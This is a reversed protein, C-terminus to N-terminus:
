LWGMKGWHLLNIFSSDPYALKEAEQLYKESLPNGDIVSLAETLYAPKDIGVLVSSIGATSLAFKVALQPLTEAHAHFLSSYKLRHEQVGRLAPHLTSGKDTLVGKCLVSRVVIGIGKEAAFRIAPLHSQDLLNFPLQIVDWVGSEVAKNSEEVSYVSIGTARIKGARKQKSFFSIVTDNGIIDEGGDHSMYVDIYDTNLKKLSQTLSLELRDTIQKDSPLRRTNLDEYVHDPKTCIIVKERCERFAKGIIAESTGYVAATDYFNIEKDKALHLLSIASKEDPPDKESGSGIGYPLGLSVTGFSIESVKIGTSGLLNNKM